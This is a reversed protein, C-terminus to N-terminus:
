NKSYGRRDYSVSRNRNRSDSRNRHHSDSRHRDNSRSRYRSRYRDHSYDRNRNRNGSSRSRGRQRKKNRCEAEVHGLKNCFFCRISKKNFRVNKNKKRDEQDKVMMLTLAELQKVVQSMPDSIAINTSNVTEESCENFRQAFFNSQSVLGTEPDDMNATLNPQNLFAEKM